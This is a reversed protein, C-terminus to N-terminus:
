ILTEDLLDIKNFSIYNRDIEPIINYTVIATDLEMSFMSISIKIKDLGIFYGHVCSVYIGTDEKIQKKIELDLIYKQKKSINNNNALKSLNM